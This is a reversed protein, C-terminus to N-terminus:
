RRALWELAGLGAARGSAFCATLLYGGTPAEWDLMEGACFVGPLAKLMLQRDLAEFTVGGASSIAEDLPRARLVRLPLAKILGALRQPDAYDAATSLERLLGARVGDLGLRGRLHNAMSKSGRPQALAKAVQELSRNPLLDLLLTAEGAAEIHERIAASLAYVLSGEIGDATIVFEGQRPVASGLSLAVPKVPAGAFKDRFYASWGAVEFGCNAPRLAAVAVGRQALLPLWAGDSGLRQWSGGGLALVVADASLAQCGNAGDILLRGQADWGLWRRRTHIVVGQERLRKLWARLLPAAKMDSPFVRGSTGVFTSIGLGHIWQRLADADFGALLAGIEGSRAGYRSLFADKAEAHTINMGGVGALLFKRGVSPMADYLDVRVGARGLVEAAMLGAPGGGIVVASRPLSATSDTM